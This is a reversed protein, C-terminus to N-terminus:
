LIPLVWADNLFKLKKKKIRRICFIWIVGVKPRYMQEFNLHKLKKALWHRINKRLIRSDYLLNTFVHIRKAFGHIRISEYVVFGSENRITPWLDLWKWFIRKASENRSAIKLLNSSDLSDLSDERIRLVISKRIRVFGQSESERIQITNLLNTEHIRKTSRHEFSENRPNTEHFNKKWIVLNTKNRFSEYVFGV